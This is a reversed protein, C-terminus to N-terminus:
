APLCSMKQNEPLRTRFFDAFSPSFSKPLPGEEGAKNETSQHRKIEMSELSKLASIGFKSVLTPVRSQPRLILVISDFLWHSSSFYSCSVATANQEHPV